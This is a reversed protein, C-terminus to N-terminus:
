PTGSGLHLGCDKVHWGLDKAKKSEQWKGQECAVNQCRIVQKLQCNLSALSNSNWLEFVVLSTKQSHLKTM